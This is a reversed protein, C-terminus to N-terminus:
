PAGAKQSSSLGAASVMSSLHSTPNNLLESPPGFEAITGHDMVLVRDSDIITAVRHAITLITCGALEDRLVKQVRADTAGDIASTPEDLIVIRVDRLLVRALMVLQQQGNSLSTAASGVDVDLLGEDLGVKSLANRLRDDTHKGFPDINARVTGDLLLPEQPIVAVRKRLTHLGVKGVDLGDIRVTGSEIDVLRMLLTVLSSKGAGTRGVIGIREGGRISLSIGKIAPPLGTRYVLVVKEMEIGGQEPWSDPVTSDHSTTWPPEQPIDDGKCQLLRELATLYTALVSIVFSFHLLFYPLQLSYTLSLGLVSDDTEGAGYILYLATSTSVLFSITYSVTLGWNMLSGHAFNLVNLSDLRTYFRNAFEQGSQMTRIVLRGASCEGQLSIVPSMANNAMRKLERGTRDLCMLEITYIVVGIFLVAAMPPALLIIIGMVQMLQGTFQMAHDFFQGLLVDVVSLDSSFRSLIRGSPTSEFFRSTAHMLWAACEDHLSRSAKVTAYSLAVSSLVCLIVYLATSGGYVAAHMDTDTTTTSNEEREENEEDIWMALRRDAFALMGYALLCLFVALGALWGMSKIYRLLVSRSVAGHERREVQVLQNSATTRAKAPEETELDGGEGGSGSGSEKVLTYLPGQAAMLDAHRGQDVVKGDQVVVVHDFRDLFQIQNLVMVITEIPSGMLSRFISQAVMPDVAALPDDLFLVAPNGYVARAIAVRQQQGGSLTVGREGIETMDGDPLHELDRGMSAIRIAAEFRAQDYTRGFLINDRVTGGIIFAKQTAIALEGDAVAVSGRLLELDGLMSRLLSSKGNGVTGVIAVRQGKKIALNVGQLRFRARSSGEAERWALEANVMEVALSPDSPVGPRSVEPLLLYRKIRDLSVLIQSFYVMSAPILIMAVRFAQFVILAAFIDAANMADGRLGLFLFSGCYALVPSARGLQVNVIHLLRYRRLYVCEERRASTIVKLFDDEWASLKIARIGEIVRTMGGVRKDAAALANEEAHKTLRSLGANIILILVMVGIGILGNTGITIGLVILGGVASAVATGLWAVQKFIEYARMADNGVLVRPDTGSAGGMPAVRLSKAQTLAALSAIFGVGFRDSLEHRCLTISFGELLLAAGIGCVFGLSQTDDDSDILYKLLMARGLTVLFGNICGALWGIFLERRWLRYLVRVLSPDDKEAEARRLEEEWAVKARPAVNAARYKQPFMPVDEEELNGTKMTHMFMPVVWWLFFQQFWGVDELDGRTKEVEPAEEDPAHAHHPKEKTGMFHHQSTFWRCPKHYRAEDRTHAVGGQFWQMWQM